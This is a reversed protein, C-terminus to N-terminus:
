VAVSTFPDETVALKSMVTVSLSSGVIAPVGAFMVWVASLPSQAANTVQVGGVLASLQLVVRVEVWLGPSLKLTPLVVTM